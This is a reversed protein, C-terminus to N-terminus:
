AQYAIVKRAACETEYGELFIDFLHEYQASSIIKADLLVALTIHVRDRSEAYDKFACANRGIIKLHTLLKDLM